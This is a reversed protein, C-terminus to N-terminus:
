SNSRKRIIYKGNKFVIIGQKFLERALFELQYHLDKHEKHNKCLYLNKESCNSKDFDIHHIPEDRRPVRGIMKEVVLIHEYVYGIKLARQHKPNHIAPYGSKIVKGGKWSGHNKGIMKRRKIGYEQMRLHIVRKTTNFTKAIDLMTKGELYLKLIEEKPISVKRKNPKSWKWKRNSM